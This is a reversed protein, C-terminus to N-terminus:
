AAILAVCRRASYGCAKGATLAPYGETNLRPFVERDWAYDAIGYRLPYLPVGRECPPPSIAKGLRKENPRISGLAKKFSENHPEM